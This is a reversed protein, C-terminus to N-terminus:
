NRGASGSLCGAGARGLNARWPSRFSLGRSARARLYVLRRDISAMSDHLGEMFVGQEYGAAPVARRGAGPM